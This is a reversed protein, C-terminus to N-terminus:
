QILVKKSITGKDTTIILFHIGKSLITVENIGEVVDLNRGMLDYVKVQQIQVTSSSRFQIVGASPIPYVHVNKQLLEEEYVGVNSKVKVVVSDKARAFPLKDAAIEQVFLTAITDNITPVTFSISNAATANNLVTEVMSGQANKYQVSVRVSDANQKTWTVNYSSDITLETNATPSTIAVSSSV